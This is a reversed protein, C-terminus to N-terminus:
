DDAPQSEKPRSAQQPKAPTFRVSEGAARNAEIHAKKVTRMEEDSLQAKYKGQLGYFGERRLFGDPVWILAGAKHQEGTEPNTWDATLKIYQTMTVEEITVTEHKYLRIRLRDARLLSIQRHYVGSPIRFTLRYIGAPLDFSEIRADDHM